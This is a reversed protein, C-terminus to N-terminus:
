EDNWCQCSPDKDGCHICYQNFLEVREDETLEDVQQTIDRLKEEATM